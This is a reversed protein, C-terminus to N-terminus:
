KESGKEQTTTGSQGAPTSSEDAKKAKNLSVHPKPRVLSAGRPNEEIVEVADSLNRRDILFRHKTTKDRVLIWDTM